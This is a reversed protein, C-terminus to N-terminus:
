GPSQGHHRNKKNRYYLSPSFWFASTAYSYSLEVSHIMEDKLDPNGKWVHTADSRDTFVNLYSGYPRIVRQVYSLALEGVKDARYGLKLRPFLHFRSTSKVMPIKELVDDTQYRTDIKQLNLRRARRSRCLFQEM